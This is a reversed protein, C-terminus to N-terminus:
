DLRIGALLAGLDCGPPRRNSDPWSWSSLSALRAQEPSLTRSSDSPKPSLMYNGSQAAHRRHGADGAIATVKEEAGEALPHHGDIHLATANARQYDFHSGLLGGGGKRLHERQIRRGTITRQSSPSLTACTDGFRLRLTRSVSPLSTAAMSRQCPRKHGPSTSTLRSSACAIRAASTTMALSRFPFAAKARASRRLRRPISRGQSVSPAHARSAYFQRRGDVGASHFSCV